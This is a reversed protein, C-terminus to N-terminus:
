IHSIVSVKKQVHVVPFMGGSVDEMNSSLLRGRYTFYVRGKPTQGQVPSEDTREWGIGAIDGANLTVDLRVSRWQLLSAGNYHVSKGNSFFYLKLIKSIIFCKYWSFKNEYVKKETYKREPINVILSQNKGIFFILLFTKHFCNLPFLPTKKKNFPEDTCYQDIVVM